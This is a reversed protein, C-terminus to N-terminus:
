KNSKRVLEEIQSLLSELKAQKDPYDSFDAKKLQQGIETYRQIYSTSAKQKDIINLEQIKQKIERLSLNKSVALKLLNQRQQENKIRAIVRAKTFEIQGERLTKLIEAPLNLLPLRSTRFSEASFRGIGKLVSEITQLQLFVNEELDQDRNKAHNARHLISTVEDNSINLTISLLDLIAETEEIPNLDERQLNEILAVQLAQQDDLEKIVIPADPLNLEQAARYRREGAVLEYNGNLLPRVLLPELIGHEQISKVLQAQKNPDFYRRPQKTPLQIQELPITQPSQISAPDTIFKQAISAALGQSLPQRIKAM